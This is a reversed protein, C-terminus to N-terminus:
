EHSISHTKQRVAAEVGTLLGGVGLSAGLIGAEDGETEVDVGANGRLGM